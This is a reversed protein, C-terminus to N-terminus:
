GEAKLVEAGDTKPEVWFTEDQVIRLGVKEMQEPEMQAKIVDKDAEKSVRLFRDGFKRELAEVIARWTWSRNLPKLTPNGVRWGYAAMETENSKKEGPFLEDRHTAAYKEARALEAEIQVKLEGIGPGYEAQVAQIAEDRLVEAGRLQVTLAAAMNVAEEFDARTAPGNSKLRKTTTMSM